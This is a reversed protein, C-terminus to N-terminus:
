VTTHGFHVERLIQSTDEIFAFSQSLGREPHNYHGFAHPMGPYRKITVENGAEGLLRGYFEGEDRELDCEATIIHARALNKFSPALVPTCIWDKTLIEEQIDNDDGLWYKLFWQERCLPGWPVDQYLLVSEYPCTTKELTRNKLCYRMDTAPVIMLQLRLDVGEDRAFHALVASMQGGASLGGISVSTPLINLLSANAITWKVADWCDYTSTPYVFEPALRYDVDIVKIRANNCMHRCWAAESNLNGLVWGGGHFNLHVPFPGPGEPSYVRITINGSPQTVPILIDEVHFVPPGELQGIRRDSKCSVGFIEEQTTFKGSCVPYTFAFKAPTKRYEEISLEDARIMSSGHKEWLEIWQPDLRTRLRGPISLRPKQEHISVMTAITTNGSM